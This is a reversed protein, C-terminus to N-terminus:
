NSYSILECISALAIAFYSNDSNVGSQYWRSRLVTFLM